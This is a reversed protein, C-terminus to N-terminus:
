ASHLKKRLRSLEEAPLRRMIMPWLELWRCLEKGKVLNLRHAEEVIWIIGRVEVGEESCRERLARDGALVIYGNKEAVCIHMMDVTSVKGNRRSSANDAIAANTEIVKIGSALINQVLLPQTKNDCEELVVDLVYCPNIQPLVSIADAYEMDILINSDAILILIAGQFAM